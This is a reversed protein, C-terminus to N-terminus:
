PGVIRVSHKVDVLAERGDMSGAHGRSLVRTIGGPPAMDKGGACAERRLMQM